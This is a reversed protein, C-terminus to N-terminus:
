GGFASRRPAHSHFAKGIMHEVRMKMTHRRLVAERGKLAIERARDRHELYYSAKEALEDLTHYVEVEEGVEFLEELGPGYEALLFGGCSMIDFIRMTVIDDQYLRNIDINILSGAYIKNIEYHHGATGMYRIGESELVRWGSDGWVRLGMCGMRSLYRVRKESAAIEGILMFPDHAEPLSLLYDLFEPSYQHLLDPLLYNSYDLRQHALLEDLLTKGEEQAGELHGRYDAYYSLFIDRFLNAQEVMSSGVFSLPAGYKQLDFSSLAPPCRKEPDTAVPLHEVHTFGSLLYEQVNAKRYTFIHIGEASSRCPALRDAAPDVEWCLLPVGRESCFESLGNTYNVAFVFEPDFRDLTRGMEELALGKIDLTYLSYNLDKLCKKIDDVFLAGSCVVARKQRKDNTLLDYETKYVTRLLPHCIISAHDATEILDLLDIGMALKLRGSILDHSYDKRMLVLRVLWPDRDWVSVRVAGPQRLLGDLQEGMGIGFLIIDRSLDAECLSTHLNKEKLAFSATTNHGCYLAEEADLFQIHSSEVPLCIRRLLDPNVQALAALNGKLTTELFGAPLTCHGGSSIEKEPPPQSASISEWRFMCRGDKVIKKGVMQDDPSIKTENHIGRRTDDGSIFGYKFEGIKFGNHHLAMGTTFDGYNHVLREDPIHCAEIAKKSLAYFGGWIFTDTISRGESTETYRIRGPRYWRANRIWAEVSCPLVIGLPIGFQDVEPSRNIAMELRELWDKETVYVDDDFWIIWDGESEAYMRRMMPYKPFIVEENIDLSAKGIYKVAGYGKVLGDIYAMARKSLNNCGIHLRYKAPDTKELVSDLCRSILDFHDNREDSSFTLVCIDPPNRLFEARPLGTESTMTM